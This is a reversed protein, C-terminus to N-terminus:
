EIGQGVALLRALRGHEELDWAIGIADLDRRGVALDVDVGDARHTARGSGALPPMYASVLSSMALLLSGEGTSLSRPASSPRSKVAPPTISLVCIRLVLWLRDRDVAGALRRRAPAQAPRCSPSRFPGASRATRRSASPACSTDHWLQERAIGCRAVVLHRHQRQRGVEVRGSATSASRPGEIRAPAACRSAPQRESHSPM